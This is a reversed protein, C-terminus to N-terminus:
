CGHTVVGCWPPSQVKSIFLYRKGFLSWKKVFFTSGKRSLKEFNLWKLTMQGNKQQAADTILCIYIYIYIYRSM